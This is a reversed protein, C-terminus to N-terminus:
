LEGTRSMDLDDDEFANDPNLFPEPDFQHTVHSALWSIMNHVSRDGDYWIPDSKRNAPYLMLSPYGLIHINEIENQSGDIKAIKLTKLNHLRQGLANFDPELKRCHGCWPAYFVIFTDQDVNNLVENQFTTSVVIRVPGNNEEDLPPEESKFYPKLKGLTYDQIFNELISDALLGKGSISSRYVLPPQQPNMPIKNLKFDRNKVDSFKLISIIPTQEDDSALVQRIRREHPLSTSSHIFLLKGRFKRAIKQFRKMVENHIPDNESSFLFVLPRDDSFLRQTVLPVFRIILPYEYKRVQTDLEELSNLDISKVIVRGTDVDDESTYNGFIDKHNNWPTYIILHSSVNALPVTSSDTYSSSNGLLVEVVESNNTFTHGFLIHQYKRSIKLYAPINSNLNNDNSEHENTTNPKPLSSNLTSNIIAIIKVGSNNRDIFNELTKKNSIYFDRNLESNIFNVIAISNSIGTYYHGVGQFYIKITPFKPIQELLVVQRNDNADLKGFSINYEKMINAAKDFEPLMERCFVCWPVYFLVVAIESTFNKLDVLGLQKVNSAELGENTNMSFSINSLNGNINSISNPIYTASLFSVLILHTLLALLKM